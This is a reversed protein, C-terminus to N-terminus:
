LCSGEKIPTSHLYWDSIEECNKELTKGVMKDCSVTINRDDEQREAIVQFSEMKWNKGKITTRYQSRKFYRLDDGSVSDCPDADLPSGFNLDRFSHPLLVPQVDCGEDECSESKADHEWERWLHWNGAAEVKRDISVKIDGELQSLTTEVSKEEKLGFPDKFSFQRSYMRSTIDRSEGKFEDYSKTPDYRYLSNVSGPDKAFIYMEKGVRVFDMPQIGQWLGDWAPAADAFMGSINAFDLSVMGGFAYDTVANGNLDIADIKFPDVTVLVRNDVTEVVTLALLEPDQAKTWNSVERDIPTNAFKGRQESATISLSRIRGDGGMFIIDSNLNTFARQGAIGANFLLLSGFRTAEWDQRALDTRYTYLSDATAVFLPGVGQSTDQIQLFGMATIPKNQNTSGLSFVQGLFPAATISIEKITIPADPAALSGVPDGATFEHVESSFFYRSQNFTGIVSALLEPCPEGFENVKKPDARRAEGGEIIVPTDPYDHIVLFRGADGFNFRACYQNLRETEPIVVDNLPSFSNERPEISIVEATNRTPDIVFIIGSIVAIISNVSGTLYEHAGQFKGSRFIDKYPLIKGVGNAVGGETLIEVDTFVFGPRPGIGGDRTSLNVGSAFQDERIRDPLVGANQGGRFSLTGDALEEAM